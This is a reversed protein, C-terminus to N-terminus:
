TTITLDRAGSHENAILRQARAELYTELESLPASGDAFRAFGLMTLLDEADRLGLTPIAAGMAHPAYQEADFVPNLHIISTRGKPDLRKRFVRALEAAGHPPANEHGDSVILILEAGWELAEMLPHALNTQGQPTLLLEDTLAPTWFSRY